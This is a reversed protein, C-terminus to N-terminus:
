RPLDHHRQRRGDWAHEPRLGDDHLVGGMMLPALLDRQVEHRQQGRSFVRCSPAPGTTMADGADYAFEAPGGGAVSAVVTAGGAPTGWGTAIAATDMTVIGSRTAPLPHMAKDIQWQTASVTGNAGVATMGMEDLMRSHFVLTPLDLGRLRTGLRAEVASPYILVASADAPIDAATVTNDDAYTIAYSDDVKNSIKSDSSSLVAPDAVVAVVRTGGAPPNITVSQSSTSSQTSGAYQGTATFSFSPRSGVPGTVFRDVHCYVLRNPQVVRPLGCESSLDGFTPSTISTVTTPQQLDLNMVTLSFRATEGPYAVIGPGVVARLRFVPATAIVQVDSTDSDTVTDVGSTATATVTGTVDAPATGSITEAATTCSYMEGPQLTQPLACSGNGDLDGLREDTLSTVTVPRDSFTNQVRIKNTVTGSPALVWPRSPAKRVEIGAAPNPWFATRGHNVGGFADGDSGAFLGAPDLEVTLVGRFGGANPIWNLGEGTHADVAAIQFRPQTRTETELYRFHGSIYVNNEDAAVGEMTDGVKDSWLPQVQGSPAMSFANLTDCAPYYFHGSSVIYATTGDPSIDVDRM